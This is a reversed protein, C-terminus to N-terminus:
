DSTLVVIIIGHGDYFYAGECPALVEKEGPIVLEDIQVAPLCGKSEFGKISFHVGGLGIGFSTGKLEQIDIEGSAYRRLIDAKQRQPKTTKM